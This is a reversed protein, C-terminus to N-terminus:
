ETLSNIYLIAAFPAYPRCRVLYLCVTFILLLSQTPACLNRYTLVPLLFPISAVFALLGLQTNLLM